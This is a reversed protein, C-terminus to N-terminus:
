TSEVGTERSRPRFQVLVTSGDADEGDSESSLEAEVQPEDPQPQARRNRRHLVYVVVGTAAVAGILIAASSRRM